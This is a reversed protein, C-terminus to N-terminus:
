FFLYPCFIGLLLGLLFCSFAHPYNFERDLECQHKLTDIRCIKLEEVLDQLESKLQSNELTLAKLSGDDVTSESASTEKTFSVRLRIKQIDQSSNWVQPIGEEEKVAQALIMFSHNQAEYYDDAKVKLTTSLGKKLIGKCPFVKYCKPANTKIKFAITSSSVNEILINSKMVVEDCDFVLTDEPNVVVLPGARNM